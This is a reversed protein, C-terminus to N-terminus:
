PDQTYEVNLLALERLAVSFKAYEHISGVKFEAVISEWRQLPLSHKEIWEDLYQDVNIKEPMEKLLGATLLRQQWDLDERFSARALGQWYNEVTQLNIQELFWHLSLRSGVQYYVEAVLEFPKNLQASIQALDFVSFTSHFIELQMALHEPIGQEIWARIVNQHTEIESEVLVQPLIEILRQYKPQYFAIQAEITKNKIPNRLMWRTARRMMRRSDFLLDYQKISSIKNDLQRVDKLIDGFSLVERVIAYATVIDGICAGTEESMRNVFNGGMENCIENALMTAIMERRLPHAQMADAFRLQLEKPFYSPLRNAFYPAETIMDIVLHEKLLMKAYALLVANEAHTLGMDKTYRELLTEDDALNELQRDLIGEKELYHIFRIQERLLTVKKSATVSISEGQLYADFLVIQEVEATMRELLENRQKMTLEGADVLGNLLIKINVENDSCDVGGVNDVFDTNVHGGHLAFEIRAQQTLGLNGGEGVIKAGLQCGDVRVGDNARDGVDIHTEQSSKVYTGIGGNWLLDVKIQLLYRILENPTLSITNIGLLAQIEPTLSISKAKRSFVGGGKSILQADYDSWSSASLRFLREREKWSIAANPTPDIFIHSHNFAAILCIHKSLLMGNGFVDGAMDGIGLCTFDTKQCDIDLERFHRKVSEWGGKATIGMAKHDYGNSGGSAFADGLWFQYENSISNALDSFTATGKDAAVVLYPDDDDHCHVQVPPTIKGDKINDTIDLLGQIFIRYCRQGEAFIDDRHTLFQQKKCIFGGKAGVPVIVTNKVQQAKVLGLIETRFDEQRDSWRLGGRAVKGARLHVGEIDPSYVFIEYAPIPKPIEPIESPRLKLSLYTKFEDEQATQQFYNTRLTACIMESYRRIIRDDDLSEVNELANEIRQKIEIEFADDHEIPDFRAKFLAILLRTLSPNSVLTDEIYSQSFPFTVQRMYRAYARLIMVERFTLGANLVLRNFGDNELQGYWIGAFTDQLRDRAELLDFHHEAHHLMSFDLIWFQVGEATQISYPSEGVVRLGLNELMPMVDSLHIPEKWQFLKLKVAKSSIPEEQPRYFLMGIKNEENLNELRQIDTVAAGPLMAEKYSRPFANHYNKAIPTGISEGFNAIIAQTLRDNWTIASEVLSQELKKMDFDFNNDQVRIIYHTRALPSESFFTTFEVKEHTHFHQQLIKQTALRFITNYRERKVYVLCSFFRCFPDRRIFIRLLDRDQMQVVGVTVHRIEDETAQFLEDRPYQEIINKLAKYSHSDPEYASKALIDRVKERVLPISATSQFYASSAYFGHFRHEGCVCGHEDLQKVGIYDMHTPRHVRSLQNAKNIIMKDNLATNLATSSLHNLTFAPRNKKQKKALGLGEKQSPRLLYEANKQELHYFKYSMFTFNNDDLWLLFAIMEDRYNKDKLHSKKVEEVVQHLQQRMPQWDSVVLRVDELTRILENELDVQLAQNALRDIEIYFVAQKNGQHEFVDVVMGQENKEVWLPSHIMLHMAIDNRNLAIRISDVLFPMDPCVIEIITRTSKWGNSGLTPNFVKVLWQDQKLQNLHHWLDIVAGYLDSENRQYLDDDSIPSLIREAFQRVLKQSKKDLKQEILTYVKELLVPTIRQQNMM